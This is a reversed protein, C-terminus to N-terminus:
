YSVFAAGQIDNGTSNPAFELTEPKYIWGTSNDAAPLSGTGNVITMTTLNSLPNKPQAPLYPGYKFTATATANTNGSEDTYLTMQDLFVSATATTAGPAIGPAVDRHQSKYVTIQSRVHAVTEKLSTERAGQAASTFQPIVIAALIGLIVVVILIEILTFGREARGRQNARDLQVTFCMM